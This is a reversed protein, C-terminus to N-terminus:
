LGQSSVWLPRRLQWTVFALLYLMTCIGSREHARRRKTSSQIVMEFNMVMKSALDTSRSENGEASITISMHNVKVKCYHFARYGESVFAAGGVNLRRASESGCPVAPVEDQWEARM